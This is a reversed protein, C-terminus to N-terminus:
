PSLFVSYIYNLSDPGPIALQGNVYVNPPMVFGKYGCSYDQWYVVTDKSYVSHIFFKDGNAPLYIELDTNSVYAFYTSDSPFEYIDNKYIANCIVTNTQLLHSFTSDPYYYSLVVTDIDALPFGTFGICMSIKSSVESCNQM